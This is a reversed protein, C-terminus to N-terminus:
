SNGWGFARVVLEFGLQSLGLLSYGWTPTTPQAVSLEVISCASRATVAGTPATAGSM